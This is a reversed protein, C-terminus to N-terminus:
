GSYTYVPYAHNGDKPSAVLVQVAICSLPVSVKKGIVQRVGECSEASTFAYHAAIFQPGHAAGGIVLHGVILYVVAYM